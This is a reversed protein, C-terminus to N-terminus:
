SVIRPPKSFCSCTQYKRAGAPQNPLLPHTPQFDPPVAQGLLAGGTASAGMEALGADVQGYPHATLKSRDVVYRRAQDRPRELGRERHAMGDVLQDVPVAADGGAFLHRVVCLPGPLAREGPVRLQDPGTARDGGEGLPLLGSPAPQHFLHGAAPDAEDDGVAPHDLWTQDATQRGGVM